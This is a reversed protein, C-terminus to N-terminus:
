ISTKKLNKMEMWILAAALFVSLGDSLSIGAWIGKIGWFHPFILLFPILLVVQRSVSLIIAKNAKGISQFFSSSVIQFGIFPFLMFVWRLGPIAYEIMASDNTFIHAIQRPFIEGILFGLTMVVTAFIVAKGYASKVRDFKRAGYNYGVIPQMGQNIGWIVMVFLITFRNIIGYAGVADDGGSKLLQHNILIIIVSSAANILFPSLGISMATLILKPQLRLAGAQWYVFQSKNSLLYIQWFLVIVQALVTAAASGKIGWKFHVVFLFAFLINLVITMLTATMAIKPRGLSRIIGNLGFFIHTIINGAIIITMFEYAHPLTHASAGFFLLIPKLFILCVVTLSGGVILNIILLNGLIYNASLYDKQGLKISMLSAFGLGFLTGFAATLNMLPFSITLGQFAEPGVYKGIFVSDIINYLASAIM